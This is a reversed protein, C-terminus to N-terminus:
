VNPVELQPSFREDYQRVLDKARQELLEALTEGEDATMGWRPLGLASVITDIIPRTLERLRNIVPAQAAGDVYVIGYVDHAPLAPAALARLTDTSWAPSGGFAFGYDFAAFRRPASLPRGPIPYTLLQRGDQRHVLQELVLIAHLDNFNASTKLLDSALDVPAAAPYRVLGCHVGGAYHNPCHGASKAASLLRSDVTVLLSPNVPAELYQALRCSVFENVLVRPGQPNEAFKVLAICDGALRFVQSQTGGAEARQLWEVADIPIEGTSSTM